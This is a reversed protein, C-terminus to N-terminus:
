SNRQFIKLLTVPDGGDSVFGEIANKLDAFESSAPDVITITNRGDAMLENKTFSGGVDATGISRTFIRGTATNELQLTWRQSDDADLDDAKGKATDQYLGAFTTRLDGRVIAALANRLAFATTEFAEYNLVSLNGDQDFSVSTTDGNRDVFSYTTRTAM